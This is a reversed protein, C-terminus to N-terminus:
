GPVCDLKLGLSPVAYSHIVDSGTVILRIHCDVPIILKNDVDLLRFQGLELDSELIMYSDFDISEGSDTIFDSYEYSWYWQHGVVKITLTPSIVEDMLYLLRFSPFAIAILILAPSITWILELVTGHTLYKYAIPNKNTNYYFMISFIFWFVAFCIVVLYFGVTNHLTVLGTFGPAASDQFGLQWPQAVDNFIPNLFSYFFNLNM